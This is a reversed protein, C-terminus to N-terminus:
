AIRAAQLSQAAAEPPMHDANHSQLHSNKHHSDHSRFYKDRHQYDPQTDLYLTAFM